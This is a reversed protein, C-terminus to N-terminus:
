IKANIRRYKENFTPEFPSRIDNNEERDLLNKIEKIQDKFNSLRTDTLQRAAAMRLQSPNTWKGSIKLGFHLHPGTSYGTNGVTGIQNGANVRAGVKVNIRNLHAYQTIYANDHQIEVVNGFGGDVGAKIIRGSAVAYVPTGVNGRYDVGSHMLRRKSIPHFRMGYPSTVHIKDLPWRFNAITLSQGSITYLGDYTSGETYRFGEHIGAKKGKYSVYYLKSRSPLTQNEFFSEEYMIKFTDGKNTHTRFDIKTQLANSAAHRVNNDIKKERLAKDLTEYVIGEVIIMKTQIKKEELYYKYDNKENDWSIRHTTIIDKYFTFEIVIRTKTDIVIEFHDNPQVTRFDVNYGFINTLEVIQQASLGIKTMEVFLSGGNPIRIEHKELYDKEITPEDIQLLEINQPKKCNFILSCVLIIIM